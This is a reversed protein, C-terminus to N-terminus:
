AHWVDADAPWSVDLLLKHYSSHLCRVLKSVLDVHAVKHIDLLVAVQRALGPSDHVDPASHKEQLGLLNNQLKPRHYKAM